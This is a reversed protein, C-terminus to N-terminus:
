PRMSNNVVRLSNFLVNELNKGSKIKNKEQSRFWGGSSYSNITKDPLEPYKKLEPYLSETIFLHNKPVFWFFIFLPAEAAIMAVPLALGIASAVAATTQASKTAISASDIFFSLEAPNEETAQLAVFRNGYTRNFRKFGNAIGKDFELKLASDINTRYKVDVFLTDFSVGNKVALHQNNACSNLLLVLLCLPFIIKILHYM